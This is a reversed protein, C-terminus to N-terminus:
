SVNKGGTVLKWGFHFARKIVRLWFVGFGTGSDDGSGKSMRELTGTDAPLTITVDQNEPTQILNQKNDEASAKFTTEVPKVDIHEPFKIEDPVKNVTLEPREVREVM